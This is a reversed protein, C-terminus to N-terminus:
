SIGVVERSFAGREEVRVGIVIKIRMVGKHRALNPVVVVGGFM